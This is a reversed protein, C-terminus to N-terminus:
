GRVVHVQAPEDTRRIVDELEFSEFDADASRLLARQLDAEHRTQNVVIAVGGPRLREVLHRAMPSPRLLRRPLGWRLHAYPTLFPKFWTVVDYRDPHELFDGAVYRHGAPELLSLYYRAVDERSHFSRYVRHADVELGTLRVPAGLWAGLVRDLAPAAEFNKSGVDLAEVRERGERSPPSRVAGTALIADLLDAFELVAAHAAPSLRARVADLDYRDSLERARGSDLWLRVGHPVPTADGPSESYGRRGFALRRRLAFFVPNAAGLLCCEAWVRADEWADALRESLREGRRM